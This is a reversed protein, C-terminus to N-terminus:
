ASVSGLIDCVWGSTTRGDVPNVEAPETGKAEMLMASLRDEALTRGARPPCRCTSGVRGLDRSMSRRHAEGGIGGLDSISRQGEVRTYERQLVAQLGVLRDAVSRGDGKQPIRHPCGAVVPSLILQKSGDIPPRWVPSLACSRPATM